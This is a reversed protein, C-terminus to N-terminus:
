LEVVSWREREIHCWRDKDKKDVVGEPMNWRGNCTEPGKAEKVELLDEMEVLGGNEDKAGIDPQLNYRIKSETRGIFGGLGFQNVITGDEEIVNVQFRPFRWATELRSQAALRAEHLNTADGLAMSGPAFIPTTPTRVPPTATPSNPVSLSKAPGNNNRAHAGMAGKFFRDGPMDVRGRPSCLSQFIGEPDNPARLSRLGPLGGAEISRALISDAANACHPHSTIDWHLKRLSTSALYPMLFIFNSDPMMPPYSQVFALDELSILNSLIRALAPMEDINIHRLILRKISHSSSRTALASLGDCSIGPMHSLSLTKLAPLSLLGDDKFATFPLRSLFLHQLSPLRYIIGPIINDPTLSGGPLAHITLTTLHTWNSHHQLFAASQSSQIDGPTLLPPLHRNGTAKNIHKSGGRSQPRPKSVADIVWDMQKLKQRTSLAHFLRDFTHNYRPYLGVLREFNPCAMVVTAILDHYKDVPLDDVASPVKLTHVIVAIQRNSRLTRRLLVLRPAPCAKYRKKMVTSDAGNLQIDEYLSTRAFKSWKRSSLSISCLDRMWCTSCSESGPKLHLKKLEDLILELVEGPLASFIEGPKSRAIYPRGGSGGSSRNFTYESARRNIFEMSDFSTASSSWSPSRPSSAVTERSMISATSVSSSSLKRPRNLMRFDPDAYNISEMTQTQQNPFSMQPALGKASSRETRLIFDFTSQEGAYSHRQYPATPVGLSAPTHPKFRPPPKLLNNDYREFFRPPGVPGSTTRRRIPTKPRVSPVIFQDCQGNQAKNARRVGAAMSATNNAVNSVGPRPSVASSSSLNDDCNRLRRQASYPTVYDLQKDCDYTALRGYQGAGSNRNRTGQIPRIERQQVPDQHEHHHAVAVAPDPHQPFLHDRAQKSRSLQLDISKRVSLRPRLKGQQSQPPPTSHRYRYQQFRERFTTSKPQSSFTSM